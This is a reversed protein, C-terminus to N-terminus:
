KPDPDFRRLKINQANIETMTQPKERRSRAVVSSLNASVM